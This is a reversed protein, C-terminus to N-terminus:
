VQTEYLNVVVTNQLFGSQGLTVFFSAVEAADVPAGMLLGAEAAIGEISRTGDALSVLAAGAQDVTFLQTDEFWGAIVGDAQEYLVIGAQMLPGAAVDPAMSAATTLVKIGRAADGAYLNIAGFGLGTGATVVALGFAGKVFARREM